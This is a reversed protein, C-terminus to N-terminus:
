LGIDIPGHLFTIQHKCTSLIACISLIQQVWNKKKILEKFM